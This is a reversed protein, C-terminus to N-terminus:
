SMVSTHKICVGEPGNIGPLGQLGPLGKDGSILLTQNCNKLFRCSKFTGNNYFLLM